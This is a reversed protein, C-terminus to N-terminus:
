FSDLPLWALPQATQRDILATWVVDGRAVLPLYSLNSPLQAAAQIARRIEVANAPFRQELETAPRAAGLVAERAAAYSQWPVPRASLSQGGLAAITFDMQEERLLPRLALLTPGTIPLPEIGFPTKPLEEGPVEAAHIVRFRDYEFVTHVPRAQFVAWLGYALATLQLVVIVCFDLLKERRPKTLNFVVFTILPGLIVDVTVVLLFLERGGSIERYPYPYWVGLVVLAAGIAVVLSFGLHIGFAKLKSRLLNM